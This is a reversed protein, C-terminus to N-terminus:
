LRLAEIGAKNACFGPLDPQAAPSRRWDRCNSDQGCADCAGVLGDVDRRTLWGEVMAGVLDVGASRAMSRTRGWAQPSDPYANM